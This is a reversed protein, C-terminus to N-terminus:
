QLTFLPISPESDFGKLLVRPWKPGTNTDSIPGTHKPGIRALSGRPLSQLLNRAPIFAWHGYLCAFHGCLCAFRASLSPFYHCFFLGCLCRFHASLSTVHGWHDLIVDLSPCFFSMLYGVIPVLRCCPSACRCIHGCPSWLTKLFPGFCGSFLVLICLSLM